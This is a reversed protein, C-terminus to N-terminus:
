PLFWCAPRMWQSDLCEGERSENCLVGHSMTQFRCDLSPYEGVYNLTRETMESSFRHLFLQPMDMKALTHQYIETLEASARIGIRCLLRDVEAHYSEDCKQALDGAELKPLANTMSPLEKLVRHFCQAAAFYDAQGECSMKKPARSMVAPTLQRGVVFPEGGIFHGTEHCLIMVLTAPNLSTLELMSQDMEIEWDTESIKRAMAHPYNKAEIVKFNLHANRALFEDAFVNKITTSVTKFTNTEQAWLPFGTLCLLAM